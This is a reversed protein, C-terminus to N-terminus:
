HHAAAADSHYQHEAASNEKKMEEQANFSIM